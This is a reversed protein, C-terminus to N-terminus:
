IVSEYVKIIESIVKNVSFNDNVFNLAKKTMQKFHEQNELISKILELNNGTLMTGADIEPKHYNLFLPIPNDLVTICGCAMAERAAMGQGIFIDIKNLYEPVKEHSIFPISDIGAKSFKKGLEEDYKGIALFDVDYENKIKKALSIFNKMGKPSRSLNAAITGIISNTHKKREPKFIETDIPTHILVTNKELGIRNLNNYAGYDIAIIKDYSFSFVLREFSYFFSAYVPNFCKFWNELYLSLVTLVIPKKYLRSIFHAPMASHYTYAHIIDPKIEKIAKKLAFFNKINFSYRTPSLNIRYIPIGNWKEYKNSAWAGAVVTVDVGRKILEKVITECYIEGGGATYPPFLEHNVLIKL